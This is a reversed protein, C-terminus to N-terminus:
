INLVSYYVYFKALFYVNISISYEPISLIRKSNLIIVLKTCGKLRPFVWSGHLLKWRQKNLLINVWEFM